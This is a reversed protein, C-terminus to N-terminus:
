LVFGQFLPTVTYMSSTQGHLEVMSGSTSSRLADQIIPDQLGISETLYEEAPCRQISALENHDPAHVKNGHQLDVHLAALNIFAVVVGIPITSTKIRPMTGSVPVAKLEKSAM